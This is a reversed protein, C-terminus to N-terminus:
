RAVRQLESNAEELDRSREQLEEVLHEIRDHQGEKRDEAQAAAEIELGCGPRQGNRDGAIGHQLIGDAPEGVAPLPPM